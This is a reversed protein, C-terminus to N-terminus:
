CLGSRMFLRVNHLSLWMKFFYTVPNSYTFWLTYAHSSDIRRLVGGLLMLPMIFPASQGFGCVLWDKSGANIWCSARSAVYDTCPIMSYCQLWTSLWNHCISHCVMQVAGAADRALTGIPFAITQAIYAISVWVFYCAALNSFKTATLGLMFYSIPFCVLGILLAFMARMALQSM